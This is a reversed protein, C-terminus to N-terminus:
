GAEMAGCAEAHIAILVGPQTVPALGCAGWMLLRLDAVGRYLCACAWLVRCSCACSPVTGVHAPALVCRGRMLLRM